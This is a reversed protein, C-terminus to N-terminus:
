FLEHWFEFCLHLFLYFLIEFLVFNVKNDMILNYLIESLSANSIIFQTILINFWIISKKLPCTHHNLNNSKQYYTSSQLYIQNVQSHANAPVYYYILTISNRDYNLIYSCKAHVFSLPVPTQEEGTEGCCCTARIQGPQRSLWIIGNIWMIAKFAGDLKAM